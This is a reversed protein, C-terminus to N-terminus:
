NMVNTKIQRFRAQMGGFIIGTKRIRRLQLMKLFKDKRRVAISFSFINMFSLKTPHDSIIQIVAM